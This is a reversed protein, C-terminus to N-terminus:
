LRHRPVGVKRLFALPESKIVKLNRNQELMRYDYNVTKMRTSLIPFSFKALLKFTVAAAIVEIKNGLLAM